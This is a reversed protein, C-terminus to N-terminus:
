PILIILYMDNDENENRIVEYSKNVRINYYGKNKEFESGCGYGLRGNQRQWNVTKESELSKRNLANQGTAGWSCSHYESFEQLSRCHKNRFDFGTTLVLMGSPERDEKLSTKIKRM